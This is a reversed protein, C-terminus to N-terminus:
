NADPQVGPAAAKFADLENCANYVAMIKPYATMDQQFRLANFVQPILYIDLMTVRDGFAYPSAKISSELAEFGLAIWHQYWTTKQEDSVGLESTLYTLVRLNNIPHIDCGITQCLARVHAKEVSDTPYLAPAPYNEGLWELIAGSQVLLQSDDLKLAPVLGQPNVQLYQPSQQEGKVLNVPIQEYRVNLMNMAIRVRYAASSRFYSYLQM